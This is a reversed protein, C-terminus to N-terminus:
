RREVVNSAAAALLGPAGERFGVNRCRHGGILLEEAVQGEGGEEWRM